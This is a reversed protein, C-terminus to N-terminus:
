PSEPKPNSVWKLAGSLNVDWKLNTLGGPQAPVDGRHLAWFADVFPDFTSTEEPPREYGQRNAAYLDTRRM